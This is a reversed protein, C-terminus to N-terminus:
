RTGGVYGYTVAGSFFGEVAGLAGHTHGAYVGRSVGHVHEDLRLLLLRLAAKDRLIAASRLIRPTVDEQEVNRFGASAVADACEERSGLCPLVCGQSLAQHHEAPGRDGRFVDHCAFRGGPRLLERVHDLYAAVDHAYCLSELNWVVDFSGRPFTTTMFDMVHFRVRDAVGHATAYARGRESQGHEITIADVDAGRERALWIASGGVGCGADLVHCDPGVGARDALFRNTNALSEEHSMEGEHMGMHFALAEPSWSTLYSTDTTERYYARIKEALWEPTRTM